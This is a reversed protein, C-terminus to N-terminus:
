DFTPFPGGTKRRKHFRITSHHRKCGGQNNQFRSPTNRVRSYSFSIFSVQPHQSFPFHSQVVVAHLQQQPVSEHPQSEFQTQPSQQLSQQLLYHKADRTVFCVREVLKAQQARQENLRPIALTGEWEFRCRLM